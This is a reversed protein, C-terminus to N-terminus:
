YKSEVKPLSNRQARKIKEDFKRSIKAIEYHSKVLIKGLTETSIVTARADINQNVISQLEIGLEHKLADVQNSHLKGDTTKYSQVKIITM